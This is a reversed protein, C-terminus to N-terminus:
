GMLRRMAGTVHHRMTGSRHLSSAVVPRSTSRSSLTRQPQPPPVPQASTKEGGNSMSAARKLKELFARRNGSQQSRNNNDDDAIVSDSPGSSSSSAAVPLLPQAQVERAATRATNALEGALKEWNATPLDAKTALNKALNNALAAAQIAAERTASDVVPTRRHRRQQQQRSSNASKAHTRADEKATFHQQRPRDDDDQASGTLLVAQHLQMAGPLRPFDSPLAAELPDNHVGITEKIGPSPAAPPPPQQCGFGTFSHCQANQRGISDRHIVFKVAGSADTTMAKHNNAEWCAVGAVAAGYRYAAVLEHYHRRLYAPARHRGAAMKAAADAIGNARWDVATLPMGDSRLRSGLSAWSTHAPGWTLMSDLEQLLADECCAFISHWM